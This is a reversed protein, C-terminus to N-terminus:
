RLRAFMGFRGTPAELRHSFFPTQPGTAVEGGHIAGWPVGVESLIRRNAAALDFMWHGERGPSPRLLPATGGTLPPRGATGGFCDLAAEAVEPGVEYDDVGICPGLVATIREPRAGLAAMAEVTAEGVRALTGRWGAHAVALVGADPDLLAMPLCDAVLVGVLIAPDNTVLADVGPIATEADVAGFGAQASDVVAVGRGHVQQGLVLRDSSAGLAALVRRRNERVREPDDGVRLGLNLSTFDGTSTGGDRTSVAVEAPQNAWASPRM